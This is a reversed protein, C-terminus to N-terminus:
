KNIKKVDVLLNHARMFRRGILVQNKMEARDALTLLIPYKTGIIIIETDIVYRKERQGNSSKVHKIYYHDTTFVTSPHDFPSFHLVLKGDEDAERVNTAHLAGTYAGTDIKAVVENIGFEPFSVKEFSGIVKKDNSTM